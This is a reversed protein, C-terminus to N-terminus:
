AQKREARMQPELDPNIKSWVTTHGCHVCLDSNRVQVEKFKHIGIATYNNKPVELGAHKWAWTCNCWRM